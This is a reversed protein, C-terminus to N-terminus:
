AVASPLSFVALGGAGFTVSMGNCNKGKAHLATFRCYHQLIVSALLQAVETQLSSPIATSFSM